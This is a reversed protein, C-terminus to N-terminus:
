KYILIFHRLHQGDLYLRPGAEKMGYRDMYHHRLISKPVLSICAEEGYCMLAHDCAFAILCGAIGDYKKDSGLNEKSVALLQVEM